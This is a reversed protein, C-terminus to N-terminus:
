QGLIEARLQRYTDTQEYAGQNERFDFGFSGRSLNIVPPMQIRKFVSIRMQRLVWELDDIFAQPDDLGWFRVWKAVPTDALKNDRYGRMVHEIGYGPYDTLQHVLWDHYFWKMPDRQDDKLEASPM